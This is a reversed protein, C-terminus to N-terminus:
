FSVSECFLSTHLFKRRIKKAADDTTINRPFKNLMIELDAINEHLGKSFTSISNKLLGVFNEYESLSFRKGTGTDLKDISYRPLTKEFYYWIDRESYDNTFDDTVVDNTGDSVYTRHIEECPLQPKYETFFIDPPISARLLLAIKKKNKTFTQIFESKCNRNNEGFLIISNPKVERSLIGEVFDVYRTRTSYIDFKLSNDGLSFALCIYYNINGNNTKVQDCIKINLFAWINSLGHKKYHSFLVRKEDKLERLYNACASISVYDGLEKGWRGLIYNQLLRKNWKYELYDQSQSNSPLQKKSLMFPQVRLITSVEKKMTDTLLSPKTKKKNMMNAGRKKLLKGGDDSCQVSTPNVVLNRHKLTQPLKLFFAKTGCNLV